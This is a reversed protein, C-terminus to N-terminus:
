FPLKPTRERASRRARPILEVGTPDTPTQLAPSPGTQSSSGARSRGPEDKLAAKRSGAERALRFREKAGAEAV